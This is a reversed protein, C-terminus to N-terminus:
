KRSALDELVGCHTNNLGITGGHHSQATFNVGYYMNLGHGQM